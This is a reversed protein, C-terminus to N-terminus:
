EGFAGGGFANSAPQSQGFLSTSAAPQQATNTQGFLGTSGANTAGGFGSTNGSGRYTLTSAIAVVSVSDVQPSIKLGLRVLTGSCALVRSSSSSSSNSSSNSNSSSSHNNPSPSPVLVVRRLSNPLKTSPVSGGRQNHQIKGWGASLTVRARTQVIQPPIVSHVSFLTQLNSNPLNDSYVLPPPLNHRAVSHRNGSLTPALQREIRSIIKYACSRPYFNAYALKRFPFSCSLHSAPM